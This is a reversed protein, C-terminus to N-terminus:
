KTQHDITLNVPGVKIEEIETIRFLETGIEEIGILILEETANGKVEFLGGTTNMSVGGQSHTGVKDGDFHLDISGFEKDSFVGVHGVEKGKGIEMGVSLDTRAPDSWMGILIRKPNAENSKSCGLFAFICLLILAPHKM